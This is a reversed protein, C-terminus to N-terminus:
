KMTVSVKASVTTPDLKIRLFLYKRVTLDDLEGQIGNDWKFEIVQSDSYKVTLTNGDLTIVPSKTGFTDNFIPLNIWYEGGVVDTGELSATMDIGTETLDYKWSVTKGNTTGSIEFSKGAEIWTLSPIENGSVFFKSAGDTGYICSALVGNADTTSTNRTSVVANATTDSWIISPAGGGSTKQKTPYVSQNESLPRYFSVLYLGKHKLAVIGDGDERIFGDERECPLPCATVSDTSNSIQAARYTALFYDGSGRRTINARNYYYDEYENWFKNIHNMAWSDTNIYFPYTDAASANTTDNIQEWRTQAMPFENRVLNHVPYFSYGWVDATRSTFHTPTNIYNSASPLNSATLLADFELSKEVADHMKEVLDLDANELEKYANYMDYWAFLNMNNYQGDAGVEVFYGAPHLAISPWVGDIIAAYQREFASLYREEKTAEYLWLRSQMGFAAQNTVGQGTYDGFKDCLLMMGEKLVERTSEDVCDLFPSIAYYSQVIDEVKFLCNSHPYLEEILSLEKTLGADSLVSIFHLMSLVCRQIVAENRYLYNLQLDASALAALNITGMGVSERHHIINYYSEWRMLKELRGDAMVKNTFDWDNDNLILGCLPHEPDVVQRELIISLSSVPAYAGFLQAELIPNELEPIEDPKNFTVTLDSNSALKVIEQRARAQLAGQYLIGDVEVLTGKFALADEASRCLLAPVGDVILTGDFDEPLRLEYVSDQTLETGELTLSHELYTFGNRSTYASTAVLEGDKYLSFEKSSTSAIYLFEAKKHAYLYYSGSLNTELVNEGRVGWREPDKIGIEFTDNPQGNMMRITWIGAKGEPIDIIVADSVANVGDGELDSFDYWAVLNGDPDEVRAIAMPAWPTAGEGDARDKGVPTYSTTRAVYIQGPAGDFEAVVAFGSNGNLPYAEHVEYVDFEEAPDFDEDPIIIDYDGANADYQNGYSDYEYPTQTASVTISIGELTKNQYGNGANEDMHGEITIPASTEGPLLVGQAASNDITFDIVELLEADGDVGSVVLNYQLALGKSETDKNVVRIQPLAYTCGPEWLIDGSAGEAKLFQLTKGEADEWTDGNLYELGVDLIGSQIKNGSVTATDTFWAMTTGVLMAVCLIMSIISSLLARKKNNTKNM